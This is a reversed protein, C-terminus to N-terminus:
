SYPAPGRPRPESGKRWARVADLRPTKRKPKAPYREPEIPEPDAKLKAAAERALREREEAEWDPEPIMFPPPPAPPPEASGPPPAVWEGFAGFPREDRERELLERVGAGVANDQM